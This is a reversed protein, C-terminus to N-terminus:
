EVKAGCEPCRNRSARLDYGCKSCKHEGYKSRPLKHLKYRLFLPYLMLVFAVLWLPFQIDSTQAVGAGLKDVFRSENYYFGGFGFQALVYYHKYTKEWPWDSCGGYWWYAKIVSASSTPQYKERTFQINGDLFIIRFRGPVTKLIPDCDRLELELTGSSGLNNSWALLWLIILGLSSISLLKAVM